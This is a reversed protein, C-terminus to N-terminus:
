YIFETNIITVNESFDENSYMVGENVMELICEEIDSCSTNIGNQRLYGLITYISCVKYNCSKLINGIYGM